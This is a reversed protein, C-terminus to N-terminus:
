EVIPAHLNQPEMGEGEELSQSMNACPHKTTKPKREMVMVMIMKRMRRKREWREKIHAVVWKKMRKM